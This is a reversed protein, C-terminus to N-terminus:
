KKAGQVHLPAALPECSPLVGRECSSLYLATLCSTRAHWICPFISLCANRSATSQEESVVPMSSASSTTPTPPSSLNQVSRVIEVLLALVSEMLLSSTAWRKLDRASPKAAPDVVPEPGTSLQDPRLLRLLCALFDPWLGDTSVPALSPFVQLGAKQVPPLTGTVLLLM